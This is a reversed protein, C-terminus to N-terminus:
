RKKQQIDTKVKFDYFRCPGECATLGVHFKAPLDPDFYGFEKGGCAATLVMRGRRPQVRVTLVHREKPAFPVEMYAALYWSPKGDKFEHHWINIGQDFLVIEWHERFEKLGDKGDALEPAIVLLPAMRVDFSMTSSIEVPAEVPTKWMLSAYNEPGYYHLRGKSDTKAVTTNLLHDAQQLWSGHVDWRPSKADWFDARNWKGDAFDIACETAASLGSLALVAALLLLKRM